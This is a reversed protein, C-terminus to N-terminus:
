NALLYYFFYIQFCKVLIYTQIKFVEKLFYVEESCNKNHNVFCTERLNQEINVTEKLKWQDDTSCSEYKFKAGPEKLKKLLKANEDFFYKEEKIGGQM